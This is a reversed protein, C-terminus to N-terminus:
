RGPGRLGAKHGDQSWPLVLVVGKLCMSGPLNRLTVRTVFRCTLHRSRACRDRLRLPCPLTVSVRIPDIHRYRVRWLRRHALRAM